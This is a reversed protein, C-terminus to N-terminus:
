KKRVKKSFYCRDYEVIDQFSVDQSLRNLILQIADEKKDVDALESINMFGGHCAYMCYQLQGDYGVYIEGPHKFVTCTNVGIKQQEEPLNKARGVPIAQPMGNDDSCKEILYGVLMGAGGIITSALLVKGLINKSKSSYGFKNPNFGQEKIYQRIESVDEWNISHYKEDPSAVIFRPEARVLAELLEKRNTKNM